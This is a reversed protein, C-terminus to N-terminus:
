DLGTASMTYIDGEIFIDFMSVLFEGFRGGLPIKLLTIVYVMIDRM